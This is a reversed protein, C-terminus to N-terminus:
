ISSILIRDEGGALELVGGVGCSVIDFSFLGSCVKHIFCQTYNLYDQALRLMSCFM